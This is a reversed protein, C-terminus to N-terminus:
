FPKEKYVFGHGPYDIILKHLFLTLKQNNEYTMHNPYYMTPTNHILYQALSQEVTVGNKFTYRQEEYENAGYLHIVKEIQKKELFSDLEYFWQREAWDHFNASYLFNYYDSAAKYVPDKIDKVNKKLISVTFPKDLDSPIRSRDTHLIILVKAPKSHLERFLCNRVSWWSCGSFGWGRPIGKPIDTLEFLLQNPWHVLHERKSCWSDGVILIDNWNYM